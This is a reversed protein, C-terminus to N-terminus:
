RSQYYFFLRLIHNNDWNIGDPKQQRLNMYGMDFSLSPSIKQKIGLFIRNQDIQNHAIAKGVQWMFEDALVLSPIHPNKSLPFTWQIMYRFRNSFQNYGTKKGNVITQQWRQENRIRQLFNIKGWKSGHQWQEYLRNEGTFYHQGQVSASLWMHAAGAAVLHNGALKRGLATRILYFNPNAMFEDRRHHFDTLIVWKDNLKVQTIVGVWSLSRNRVHNRYQGNAQSYGLCAILLIILCRTKPSLLRPESFNLNATTM